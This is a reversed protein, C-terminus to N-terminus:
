FRRARLWWLGAAAGVLAASSFLGILLSLWPSFQAAGAAPSVVTPAPTESATPTPTITAEATPAATEEMEGPQPSGDEGGTFTHVPMLTGDVEEFQFPTVSPTFPRETRTASPVATPRQTPVRTPFPTITPFPVTRTFTPSATPTPTITAANVTVVEIASYVSIGDTRLIRLRYYYTQGNTLGTITQIYSRGQLPSGSRPILNPNQTFNKGDLSTLLYFGAVDPENNTVWTINVTQSSALPKFSKLIPIGVMFPTYDLDGSLNPRGTTDISVLIEKTTTNCSTAQGEGTTLGEPRQGTTDWGRTVPNPSPDYWYLPYLAPNTTQGCYQNSSIVTECTVTKDYKFSLELAGTPAAGDALFIDYASGCPSISEEGQAYTFPPGSTGGYGHDIIYLGFNSGGSRRYSMQNDFAYTRAETVNVLLANVGPAGSVQTIPAGLRKSPSITCRSNELTPSNLGWYNHNARRNPVSGTGANACEIAPLDSRNGHLNNAVVELAGGGAGEAQVAYGKNGTIHNYRVTVPGSGARILIANDGETLDNSEIMVTGPSNVELLNRGPVSCIGDNINLSRVTVADNLSLMAGSCVGPGNYTLTSDGAGTIIVPRNVLVTSSKITYTGLVTIVAGPDAADVADKLGTGIGDPLDDGSNIYCPSSNGCASANNAVFAPNAYPTPTFSTTTAENVLKWTGDLVFVRGRIVGAGSANKGLRFAARVGDASASAPLRAERATFLVANDPPAPDESCATVRNYPLASTEGPVSDTLDAQVGWGAPAYLCIKVNPNPDEGGPTYGTLQFDFRMNLRQGAACRGDPCVTPSIMTLAAGQSLPANLIGAPAAPGPEPPEPLSPPAALVVPAFSISALMWVLVLLWQAATRM